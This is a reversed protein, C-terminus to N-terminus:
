NRLSKPDEQGLQAQTTLWLIQVSSKRFRIGFHRLRLTRAFIFALEQAGDLLLPVRRALRLSRIMDLYIFSKCRLWVPHMPPWSNTNIRARAGLDHQPEGQQQADGEDTEHCAPGDM